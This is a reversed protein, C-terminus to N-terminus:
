YIPQIGHGGSKGTPISLISQPTTTAYYIPYKKAEINRHPDNSIKKARHQLRQAVGRKVSYLHNFNLYPGTFTPKSYVAMRFVYGMRTILAHLFALQNDKM